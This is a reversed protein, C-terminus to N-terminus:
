SRSRGRSVQDPHGPTEARDERRSDRRVDLNAPHHYLSVAMDLPHRAVLLACILQM